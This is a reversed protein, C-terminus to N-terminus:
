FVQFLMKKARKPKILFSAKIVKQFDHETLNKRQRLKKAHKRLGNTM